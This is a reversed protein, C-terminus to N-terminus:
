GKQSQDDNNEQQINKQDDSTVKSFNPIGFQAAQKQLQQWALTNEPTLVPNSPDNQSHLFRLHEEKAQLMITHPNFTQEESFFASNEQQAQQIKSKISHEAPQWPHLQLSVLEINYKELERALSQNIKDDLNIQEPSSSKKTELPHPSFLHKGAPIGHIGKRSRSPSHVRKLTSRYATDAQELQQIMIWHKKLSLVKYRQLSSFAHTNLDTNAIIPKLLTIENLDDLNIKRLTHSLTNNLSYIVLSDSSLNGKRLLYNKVKGLNEKNDAITPNDKSPVSVNFTYRLSIDPFVIPIGEKTRCNAETQVSHDQLFIVQDVKESPTFFYHDRSSPYVPFLIRLFGQYNKLVTIRQLGASIFGPGFGDSPDDDVTHHAHDSSHSIKAARHNAHFGLLLMWLVCVGVGIPNFLQKLFQMRDPLALDYYSVGMANLSADFFLSYFLILFLLMGLVLIGWKKRGSAKFEQYTSKNIVSSIPHSM